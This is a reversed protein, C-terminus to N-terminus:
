SVLEEFRVADDNDDPHGNANFEFDSVTSSLLVVVGDDISRLEVMVHGYACANCFSQSSKDEEASEDEDDVIIVDDGGINGSDVANFSHGAKAM